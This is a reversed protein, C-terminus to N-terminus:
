GKPKFTIINKVGRIEIIFFRVPMLVNNKAVMQEDRKKEQSRVIEVWSLFGPIFPFIEVPGNDEPMLPDPFKIKIEFEGVPRGEPISAETSAIPPVTVLFSSPIPRAITFDPL